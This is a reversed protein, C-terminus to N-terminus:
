NRRRSETVLMGCAAAEERGKSRRITYSIGYRGIEGTFAAIEAKSPSSFPLNEIENWPILNVLVDLGRTFSFLARASEATTNVGGLLCYELTIRKEGRHQFSVLAKKLEHLPYSRNVPMIRSRLEDSAAVLSVALRVPIGLEGLRRIGPVLGCTSITIRRYSINLGDERHLTNVATMVSTFNMLPEGMGMFVIHSIHAGLKELHIYQEVIEGATLNRMLGMTGTACFACKMACGVQSSLCATYRGSGDSLRVCEVLLGDELELMLKVADPSDKRKMVKSSLASPREEKLRKRVDKGLSTMKEFDTIGHDLAHRVIKAQLPKELKLIEQLEENEICYLQSM